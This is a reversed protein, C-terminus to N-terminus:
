KQNLRIWGHQFKQITIIRIDVVMRMRRWKWIRVEKVEENDEEEEEEITKDKITQDDLESKKLVVVQSSSKM